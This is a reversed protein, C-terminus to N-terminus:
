GSADPPEGTPDALWDTIAGALCDAIEATALVITSAPALTCLVAPMRTQRLIPLRRGTCIAKAAEDTAAELHIRLARDLARACRHALRLGGESHFGETSFYDTRCQSHNELRLGLYISAEFDNAAGAQIAEDAQDLDLVHAGRARLLRTLAAALTATGGFEGITIRQDILDPRGRRLRDLERVQAVPQRGATRGLLRKLNDVTLPGAIGDAALGVNRQFETIAAATDPGLIGDIRGADFGLSGLRLQLDAVDDGRFMPAHLYLHRDGLRHGAEVLAAHTADDVTGHEDLGREAQFGLLARTTDPGFSGDAVEHQDVPHGADALRRHLDHITPDDPGTM